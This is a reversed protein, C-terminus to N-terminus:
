ARMISLMNFEARTSVQLPTTFSESGEHNVALRSQWDSLVLRVVDSWNSKRRPEKYESPGRDVAKSSNLRSEYDAPRHISAVRASGPEIAFERM